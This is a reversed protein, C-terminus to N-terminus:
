KKKVKKTTKKGKEALLEKVMSAPIAKELIEVANIVMEILDLPEGDFIGGKSNKKKKGEGTRSAIVILGEGGM